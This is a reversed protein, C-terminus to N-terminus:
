VMLIARCLCHNQITKVVKSIMSNLAIAIYLIITWEFDTFNCEISDFYCKILIGKIDYAFSKKLEIDFQRDIVIQRLKDFEFILEKIIIKFWLTQGLRTFTLFYNLCFKHVLVFNQDSQEHKL